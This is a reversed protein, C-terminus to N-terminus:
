SSVEESDSSTDSSADSTPFPDLSADSSEPFTELTTDETNANAAVQEIVEKTPLQANLRRLTESDGKFRAINPYRFMLPDAAGVSYSTGTGDFKEAKAGPFDGTRVYTDYTDVGDVKKSVLIEFHLHPGTTGGAGPWGVGGGMYGIIEGAKVQDGVQLRGTSKEGILFLHMSRTKVSYIDKKDEPLTHEITVYAIKTSSPQGSSPGVQKVVGDAIAVIPYGGRIGIDIGYHWRPAPYISLKRPGFKSDVSISNGFSPPAACPNYIPIWFKSIEEVISGKPPDITEMTSGKKESTQQDKIIANDNGPWQDTVNFSALSSFLEPFGTYGKKTKKIIKAKDQTQDTYLIDYFEGAQPNLGESLPENITQTHLERTIEKKFNGVADDKHKWPPDIFYNKSEANRSYVKVLEVATDPTDTTTAIFRLREYESVPSTAIVLSTRNQVGELINQDRRVLDSLIQSSFETGAAEGLITNTYRSDKKKWPNQNGPIELTDLEEALQESDKEAM